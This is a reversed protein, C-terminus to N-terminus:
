SRSRGPAANRTDGRCPRVQPDEPHVRVTGGALNRSGARGRFATRVPARAQSQRNRFDRRKRLRDSRPPVRLTRTPAPRSYPGLPLHHMQCPDIPLPRAPRSPRRMLCWSVAAVGSFRQAARWEEDRGSVHIRVYATPGHTAGPGQAFPAAGALKPHCGQHVVLHHRRVACKPM